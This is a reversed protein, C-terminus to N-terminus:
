HGARHETYDCQHPRPASVSRKVKTDCPNCHGFIACPRSVDVTDASVEPDLIHGIANLGSYLDAHCRHLHGSPSVLWESTQCECRLVREGVVSGEYKYTGYLRGRWSGLFEKFRFDIGQKTCTDHAERVPRAIEPDPHLIGFIGIRFGADQLRHTKRVLDFLDNQGPHYTVRIPAYPAERTFREVPVRKAFEDADFLMNTLLDMKISADAENVIRQFGHYTTPEGGQLTIPLDGRLGMRNAARIWDDPTM